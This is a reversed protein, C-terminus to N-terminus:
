SAPMGAKALGEVLLRDHADPRGGPGMLGAITLQPWLGLTRQVTARAEELRGMHAYCAAAVCLAFDTPAPNDMTRLGWTLADEMRGASLSVRAMQSMCRVAQGGAPSLQLAHLTCALGEEFSGRHWHAYGIVKAIAQSNPNIAYARKILAYGADPEGKVTMLVVGAVMLVFADGDDARMAREALAIASAADDVGSPPTGSRTLRKEHAWAALALVPAFGPDLAIARDLLAIAENYHELRQVGLVHLLPLAQLYLDYAGLNEPRKRRSRELEARHIEPEILGIVRATIRDQFDLMDDITGDLNEAWLHAGNEGDILQASVRVRRGSRRVSGELVYRVSLTRAAERVDVARGKYVFSSNRAVVAFPKFRSLATILDEVMGDAFYDQESDSTLNLFPLVAIAPRDDGSAPQQAERVLRYGVRPVTAIWEQGDPRTGLTKRLTAIQVALNGDEVAVDPWAHDLLASRSVVAGDAALLAALLAVGRAGLPVLEADRWLTANSTDFVFPGFAVRQQKM